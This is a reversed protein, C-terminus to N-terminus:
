MFGLVVWGILVTVLPSIVIEGVARGIVESIESNEYRKENYSQRILLEAALAIGIASSISLVPLNFLPSIFWGWIISLTWGNIIPALVLAAIMTAVLIKLQM